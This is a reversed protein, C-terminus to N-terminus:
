EFVCPEDSIKRKDFAELVQRGTESNGLWVYSDSARM